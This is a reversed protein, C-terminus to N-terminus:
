LVEDESGNGFIFRNNDIDWVLYYGIIYLLNLGYTCRKRPQFLNDNEDYIEINLAKFVFDYTVLANYFNEGVQLSMSFANDKLSPFKESGNKFDKYYLFDFTSIIM